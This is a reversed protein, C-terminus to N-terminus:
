RLGGGFAHAIVAHALAFMLLGWTMGIHVFLWLKLRGQLARHYDLDEKERVYGSLTTAVERHRPELYRDLQRIEAALAKSHRLSPSLYYVPSRRYEMFVMLRNLYFRALVDTSHATEMVLSRAKRAIEYRLAPIQEFVFERGTATLRRPITRTIYLGYIGSGAVCVFLGALWRELVGTPIRFGIHAFFMAITVWGIYIHAQMWFRASGPIPLFALKKRLNFAALFIVMGLLVYGTVWATRVLEDALHISGMIGGAVLITTVSVLLARRRRLSVGQTSSRSRTTRTTASAKM